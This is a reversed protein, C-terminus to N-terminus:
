FSLTGSLGVASASWALTGPESGSLTRRLGGVREEWDQNGRDQIRLMWGKVWAGVRLRAGLDVKVEFEGALYNGSKTMRYRLDDFVINPGPVTTVLRLPLRVDAAAFPSGVFIARYAPGSIEFGVYPILTKIRLDGSYSNITVAPPVLAFPGRPDEMGLSMHDFRVGGLLSAGRWPGFGVGSDVTWREMQSGTWEMQAAGLFIAEIPTAVKVNRRPSGEGSAFIKFRPAPWLDAHISGVWADPDILQLEVPGVLSTFSVEIPLSFNLVTRQYGAKVSSSFKRIGLRGCPSAHHHFVRGRTSDIVTFWSPLSGTLGVRFAAAAAPPALLIATIVLIRIM